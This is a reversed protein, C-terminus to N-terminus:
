CEGKGSETKLLFTLNGDMLEPPSFFVCKTKPAKKGKDVHMELGFRIFHQYILNLGRTLQDRDEFLFAGNDVYLVCLLDCLTGQQFSKKKHGILKHIDCLSHTHQRLNITNLYEKNM